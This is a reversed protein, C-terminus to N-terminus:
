ESFTSTSEVALFYEITESEWKSFGRASIKVDYKGPLLKLNETRIIANFTKDTEGVEVNYNDSTPNKSDIARVTITEGDGTIAIEPLSLISLVKMLEQYQESTITFEVDAEPLQIEKEPPKVIFSPDAFVYNIRRKDKKIELSKDHVILEPDDFISLTSLFKSLDYIAFTDEFEQDVKAKAFVTKTQSITSLYKGPKFLISPNISAFNKLITLTNNDFQM